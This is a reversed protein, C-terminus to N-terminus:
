SVSNVSSQGGVTTLYNKSCVAKLPDRNKFAGVKPPPHTVARLDAGLLGCWGTTVGTVGIDGTVITVGTVYYTHIRICM